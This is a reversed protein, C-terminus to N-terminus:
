YSAALPRDTQFYKKYTEIWDTAIERQATTLDLQGQCVLNRLRDELADKVEANWGSTRASEPWLNHIDDSGGLAPTILYDIEYADPHTPPIGYEAFVEREVRTSVKKNKARTQRCVETRTLAITAGPTLTHNPLTIAALGPEPRHSPGQRMSSVAFVILVAAGLIWFLQRKRPLFSRPQLEETERIQRLKARLLARPGEGAPLRSEFSNRHFQVFRGIAAELELRRSRCTWCSALHAEARARKRGRLEGDAFMLLEQDSLHIGNFM